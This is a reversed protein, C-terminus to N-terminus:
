HNDDFTDENTKCKDGSAVPLTFNYCLWFSFGLFLFFGFFFRVFSLFVFFFLCFLLFARRVRQLCKSFNRKWFKNLISSMSKSYSNSKLYCVGHKCVNSCLWFFFFCNIIQWKFSTYRFIMKFSRQFWWDLVSYHM